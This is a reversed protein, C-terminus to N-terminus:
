PTAAAPGETWDVVLENRQGFKVLHRGIVDKVRERGEDDPAEADLQLAAPGPRLLCSGAGIHIVTGQPTEEVTAKHGLHSALQKAYRAAVDTPVSSTAIPM